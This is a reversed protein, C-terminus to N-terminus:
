GPRVPRFGPALLSVLRGTQLRGPGSTETGNLRPRRSLRVLAEGEAEFFIVQHWDAPPTSALSGTGSPPNRKM